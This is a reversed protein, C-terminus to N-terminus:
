LSLNYAITLGHNANPRNAFTMYMYSVEIENHNDVKIKIGANYRTKDWKDWTYLELGVFPKIISNPISYQAVFLSRLVNSQQYPGSEMIAWSSVYREKLMLFLNGQRTNGTLGVMAKHSSAREYCHNFEYSIDAKLWSKISYGVTPRILWCDGARNEFKFNTNVKNWKKNVQVFNRLSFTDQAFSLVPILLIFTALVCVRSKMSMVTDNRNLM